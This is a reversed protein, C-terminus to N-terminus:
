SNVEGYRKVEEIIESKNKMILLELRREVSKIKKELRLGEKDLSDRELRTLTGLRLSANIKAQYKKRQKTLMDSEKFLEEMIEINRQHKKQGELSMEINGVRKNLPDM